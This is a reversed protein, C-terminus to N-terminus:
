RNPRPASTPVRPGEHLVYHGRGQTPSYVNWAKPITTGAETTASTTTRPSRAPLREPRLQTTSGCRCPGTQRPADILTQEILSRDDFRDLLTCDCYYLIMAFEGASRVVAGDPLREALDHGIQQYQPTLAWNGHM